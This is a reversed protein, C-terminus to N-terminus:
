IDSPLRSVVLETLRLAEDPDFPEAGGFTTFSTDVVARGSTVTIADITAMFSQGSSSLSMTLRFAASEDGIPGIPVSVVSLDDVTVGEAAEIGARFGEELCREADQSTLLAMEGAGDETDPNMEVESVVAEEGAEFDGTEFQSKATPDGDDEDIATADVGLCDAMAAESAADEKDDQADPEDAEGLAFGAPMDSLKLVADEAAQQDAAADVTSADDTSSTTTSDDGTSAGEDGDDGCGAALFAAVLIVAIRARMM